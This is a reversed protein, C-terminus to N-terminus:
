RDKLLYRICEFIVDDSDDVARNEAKRKIYGMKLSLEEQERQDLYPMVYAIINSYELAILVMDFHLNKQESKLYETLRSICDTQMEKTIKIEYFIKNKTKFSILNKNAMFELLRKRIKRLYYHSKKYIEGNILKIFRPLTVRTIAVMETIQAWVDEQEKKRAKENVILINEDNLHIMGKLSLDAILCTRIAISMPNMLKSIKKKFTSFMLLDEAISIELKQPNRRRM